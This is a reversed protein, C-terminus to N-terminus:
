PISLNEVWVAGLNQEAWNKVWEQREPADFMLSGLLLDVDGDADLDTTDMVMWRGDEQGSILLFDWAGSAQQLFVGAGAPQSSETAPFFSIAAIDLDGDLDYDLPIAEYVGPMPLFLTEEWASDAQVYWRIGQYPKTVPPYDANDGHMVLLDKKGDGTLDTYRFGTGGYGPPFNLWQVPSFTGNEQIFAVIGERGQSFMAIIDQDGDGDVDAVEAQTAGPENWLIVKEYGRNTGNNMWVSLRGVWKGFECVVADIARDGNLDAFVADVPRYLPSFLKVSSMAEYNPVALVYGGPMNVPSFSGMVTVLYGDNIIEVSVAGEGVGVRKEPSLDFPNLFTLIGGNAEGIAISGDPLNQILTTSPLSGETPLRHMQAALDTEVPSFATATLSDPSHELFYTVIQQWEEQPLLPNVPFLAELYKGEDGIMEARSYGSGEEGYWGLRAGMHPLVYSEWISTPLDSPSPVAHCSSCHIKVLDEPSVPNKSQQCSAMFWFLFPISTWRIFHSRTMLFLYTSYDEFFAGSM